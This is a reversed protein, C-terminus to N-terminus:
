MLEPIGILENFVGDGDYDNFNYAEEDMCGYGILVVVM